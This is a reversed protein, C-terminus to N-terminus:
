GGSSPIPCERGTSPETARQGRRDLIELRVFVRQLASAEPPLVAGALGLAPAAIPWRDLIPQHFEADKAVSLVLQDGPRPQAAFNIELKLEQGDRMARVSILTPTPPPPDDSRLFGSTLLWVGFGGTASVALAPLAGRFTVNISGVFAGAAFGGALPLIWRLIRQQDLTLTGRSFGWFAFGVGVVLLSAGVIFWRWEMRSGQAGAPADGPAPRQDSPKKKPPM